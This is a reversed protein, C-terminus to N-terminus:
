CAGPEPQLLAARRRFKAGGNILVGLVHQGVRRSRTAVDALAVGLRPPRPLRHDALESVRLVLRQRRPNVPRM